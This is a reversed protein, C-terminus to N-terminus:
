SVAVFREQNPRRRWPGEGAVHGGGDAGIEGVDLHALTLPGVVQSPSGETVRQYAIVLYHALQRALVHQAPGVIAREVIQGGNLAGSRRIVVAHDGPLIDALGLARANDM